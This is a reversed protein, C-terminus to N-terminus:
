KKKTDKDGAVIDLAKRLQAKATVIMEQNSGTVPMNGLVDYVASLTKELETM